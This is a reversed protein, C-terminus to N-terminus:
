NDTNLESAVSMLDIGIVVSLQRSIVSLQYSIQVKQFCPRLGNHRFFRDKM